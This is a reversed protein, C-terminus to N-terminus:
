KNLADILACSTEQESSQCRVLLDKLANQMAELDRLNQEIKALKNEALHQVEMCNGDGLDLLEQIEKLTFGLHQARKIFIVRSLDNVSYTRYGTEPKPPEQLLGLRQYYRITEVNVNVKKM